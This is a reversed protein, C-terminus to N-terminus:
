FGGGRGPDSNPDASPAGHLARSYDYIESLVRDALFPAATATAATRLRDAPQDVIWEIARSLATASHADVVRGAGGANVLRAVQGVNTTAIPLGCALSEFGVTPGTEYLSTIVQVDCANMLQALRPRSVTGVFRVADSVGLSSLTERLTAELSGDGAVILHASPRLSRLEAFTAALLRPNKQGELRGAFLLLPGTPSLQLETAIALRTSVRADEPQMSFITPDAWNPLYRIRDAVEPFRARYDDAVLENVVYIRDMRRFALREIAALLSPIMRWRSESGTTTLDQVSLHVVRWKRARTFVFPLDTGPRHFSMIRDGVRLRRRNRILGAVFGLAIPVRARSEARGRSVPMFTVPRGELEVRQWRGLPRTSSVGVIGIEFDAPAFKVFGRIFSAIGGIRMSEPDAPLVLLTRV